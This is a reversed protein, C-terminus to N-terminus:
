ENTMGKKRQYFYINITTKVKTFVNQQWRNFDYHYKLRVFYSYLPKKTAQPFITRHPIHNGINNLCEPPIPFSLIDTKKIISM